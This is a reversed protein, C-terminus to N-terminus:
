IKNYSRFKEETLFYGGEKPSVYAIGWDPCYVAFLDIHSLDYMNRKGNVVTNMPVEVTNRYINRYKVQIRKIDGDKLAICDIRSHDGIPTFVEYDKQTLDAAVQLLGIVGKTGTNM